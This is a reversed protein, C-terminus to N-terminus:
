GGEMQLETTTKWSTGLVTKSRCPTPTASMSGADDYMHMHQLCTCLVKTDQSCRIYACPMISYCPLKRLAASGTGDGVGAELNWDEGPEFWM